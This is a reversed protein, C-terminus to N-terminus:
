LGRMQSSLLARETFKIIKNKIVVQLQSYQVRYFGWYNLPFTVQTCLRDMIMNLEYM